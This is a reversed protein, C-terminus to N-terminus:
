LMLNADGFSFFRYENKIAIEYLKKVNDLGCFASVLMLLTSEPLHFNTILADVVKFKYPPYIFINTYGFGAVVNGEKDCSSELTRVSTTGVAFVRGGLKKADNIEKASQGSVEYFESHIKYDKINEDKVPRFTGLGVHLLVEIVKIGKLQIKKMLEATFHLGATPAASSGVERSYVTQYREKDKLKVHIYPPLPMAGLRDLNEEFNGNFCFEVNCIGDALKQLIKCSFDATFNIITGEKLRKYPKALVEWQKLSHRKLLLIEIKANTEQKQGILRAPIVRSTNVVLVDGSKLYDILDYFHKHEVKDTKRDYVLLKSHDRTQIPTQAILEKPLNYNYTSKLTLDIM